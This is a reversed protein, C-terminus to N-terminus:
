DSDQSRIKGSVHIFIINHTTVVIMGNVKCWGIVGPNERIYCSKRILFRSLHFDRKNTDKKLRYQFRPSNRKGSRLTGRKCRAPCGFVPSLSFRPTVKQRKQELIFYNSYIVPHLSLRLAVWSSAMWAGVLECNSLWHQKNYEPDVVMNNWYSTWVMGPLWIIKTWAM